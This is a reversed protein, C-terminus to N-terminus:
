YIDMPFKVDITIFPFLVFPNLGCTIVVYILGKV